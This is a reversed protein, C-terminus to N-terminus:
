MRRAFPPSGMTLRSSFPKAIPVAIGIRRDRDRRDITIIAVPMMVALHKALDPRKELLGTSHLKHFKVERFVRPLLAKKDCLLKRLETAVVRYTDKVGEHFLAINADLVRLSAEYDIRTKNM